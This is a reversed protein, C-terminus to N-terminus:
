GERLLLKDERSLSSTRGLFFPFHWIWLQPMLRRQWKWKVCLGFAAGPGILYLRKTEYSGIVLVCCVPCGIVGKVLLSLPPSDPLFSFNHPPASLQQMRQKVHFRELGLGFPKPRVLLDKNQACFRSWDMMWFWVIDQITFYKGDFRLLWCSECPFIKKKRKSEIKQM